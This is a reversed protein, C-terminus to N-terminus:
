FGDLGAIEHEGPVSEGFWNLITVTPARASVTSWARYGLVHLLVYKGNSARYGVVESFNWGALQLPLPKPLPKAPPMPNGLTQRLRSLVASRKKRAPSEQWQALDLGNDIITLAAAKVRPDLRWIRWQISALSLCFASTDKPRDCRYM